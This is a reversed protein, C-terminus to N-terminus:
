FTQGMKMLNNATMQNKLEDNERRIRELEQRTEVLEAQVEYMKFTPDDSM